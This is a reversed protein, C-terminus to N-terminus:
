GWEELEEANMPALSSEPFHFPEGKIEGVKPRSKRNAKSIPVLMAIPVKDRTIILEEGSEVASLYRSLHTKAEHTTIVKMPHISCALILNTLDALLSTRTPRVFRLPSM